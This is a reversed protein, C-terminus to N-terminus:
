DFWRGLLEAAAPSVYDASGDPALVLVAGAVERLGRDLAWLRRRGDERERVARFAARLHPSLLTALERQDASFEGGGRNVTLAIWPTTEVVFTMQNAIGNPRM